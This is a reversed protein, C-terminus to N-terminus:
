IGEGSDDDEFQMTDQSYDGDLLESSANLITSCVITKERAVDGWSLSMTVVYISDYPGYDVNMQWYYVERGSEEDGIQGQMEKQELFADVGMCDVIAMQMDLVDWAQEYERNKQVATISKNSMSSLAVIGSGLLLAAALVEVLSFGKRSIM